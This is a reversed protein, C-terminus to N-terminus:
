PLVAHRRALEAVKEWDVDLPVSPSEFGCAQRVASILADEVKM